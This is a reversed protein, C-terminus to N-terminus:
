SYIVLTPYAITGYVLLFRPCTLSVFACSQSFSIYIFPINSNEYSELQLCNLAFDTIISYVPM